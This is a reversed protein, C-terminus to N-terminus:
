NGVSRPHVIQLEPDVMDPARMVGLKCLKTHQTILNASLVMLTVYFYAYSDIVILLLFSINQSSSLVKSIWCSQAKKM